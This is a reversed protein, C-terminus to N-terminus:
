IRLRMRYQLPSCGVRKKFLKSFHYVDAIGVQAAIEGVKARTSRLLRRAHTIRLRILYDIPGQGTVARFAEALTSESVGARAALAARNLPRRGSLNIEMFGAIERVLSMQTANTQTALPRPNGPRMSACLEAVFTLALGRLRMERMDQSADVLGLEYANAINSAIEPLPSEVSSHFLFANTFIQPHPATRYPRHALDVNEAFHLPPGPPPSTWPLFSLHLGILTFPDARAARYLLPCAWPVHLIQGPFLEFRQPGVQMTGRGRMNLLFLSSESWHPGVVEGSAFPYFNALLVRPPTALLEVTTRRTM